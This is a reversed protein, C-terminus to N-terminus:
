VAERAIRAAGQGEKRYRVALGSRLHLGHGQILAIGDEADPNATTTVFVSGHRAQWIEDSALVIPGSWDTSADDILSM